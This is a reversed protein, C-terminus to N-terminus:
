RQWVTNGIVDTGIDRTEVKESAAILIRLRVCEFDFEAIHSFYALM